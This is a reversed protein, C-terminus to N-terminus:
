GKLWAKRLANGKRKAVLQHTDRAPAGLQVSFTMLEDRRFAHIRIAEGARRLGLLRDLTSPTVRFGDIAMLLDGASLGAAQAPGGTYVTTLRIENGDHSTRVGLTPTKSAAKRKLRIDFPKLLPALALESTGRVADAFFRKLDLGSLEEAILRIEEDGVGEDSQPDLQGHRRWLARMVDDLSIRSDTGARLTLDLALAVLAGKAYYSVVTNPTNEDPRYYKTWADFSSDALSQRQRGPDRQVKDITKAILGLWDKLTITGCRLLALDDYYSTFGEFAWLLTTHTERDLDYATFAAPKIRKVNWSHFYEHSCLGLFSRYREPTGKMGPYPLDDRACILATSARHELGGYGDGVATVLFRYHPMPAPEGFFRIQWECIRTLDAALRALDCDHRGSIAVEHAVGCAIFSALTFVGMEVPHDILEDYSSARYLGFGHDKACGKEGSAPALATAVRWDQYRKGVPPQIDVLCPQQEHGLPRLFVSTGNFFAHTQDLHAGRVSLDWAYIECILALSAVKGLPAAQWTHKDIRDLAVPKGASEARISVIHRAFDRILYSGPIWAPLAFRQGAPDAAALTCRVEFLHAEPHNPRITYCISPPKM